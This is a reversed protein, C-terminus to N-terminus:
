IKKYHNHIIEATEIDYYLVFDIKSPSKTSEAYILDVPWNKKYINNFSNNLDEFFILEDVMLEGSQNFLFKYQEINHGVELPNISKNIKIRTELSKVWESFTVSTGYRLFWNYESVSGSWPNRVVAFKFYDIWIEPKIYDKKLVEGTLHQLVIKNEITGNLNEYPSGESMGLTKEISEGATKPIHIFITKFRHSIPM